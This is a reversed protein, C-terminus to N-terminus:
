TAWRITLIENDDLGRLMMAEKALEAMCRHSYSIIAAGKFQMIIIDQIEGFVGFHRFLLEYISKIYNNNTTNVVGKYESVVLSRNEQSFVGIGTMDERYNTHRNRGFIDKTSDISQCEDLTPIRHYYKCDVGECCCGRIFHLCVHSHFGKQLDAKTYGSDIEPDCKTVAAEKTKYKDNSDSLFKDFWM